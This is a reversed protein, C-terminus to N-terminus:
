ENNIAGESHDYALKENVVLEKGGIGLIINITDVTNQPSTTTANGSIGMISTLKSENTLNGKLTGVRKTNWTWAM